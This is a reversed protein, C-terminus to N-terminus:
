VRTLRVASWRFDSPLHARIPATRRVLREPRHRRNRRLQIFYKGGHVTHRVRQVAPELEGQLAVGTATCGVTKPADAAEGGQM